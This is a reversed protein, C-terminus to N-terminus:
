VGNTEATGMCGPRKREKRLVTSVKMLKAEQEKRDFFWGLGKSFVEGSPWGTEQNVGRTSGSNFEKGEEKSKKAM